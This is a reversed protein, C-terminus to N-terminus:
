DETKIKGWTVTLKEEPSVALVTAFGNTAIDKIVDAELAVNFVAVEDMAGDFFEDSETGYAGIILNGTNQIPVNPVYGPVEMHLEGDYYLKVGEGEAYVGAVHHWEGDNVPDGISAAADCQLPFNIKNEWTALFYGGCGTHNMYDLPASTTYKGWAMLTFAETVDLSPDNGCNIRHDVGNFELATGFMGDVWGLDGVFEGDNGNDSSDHAVDGNGEDFLWLGAITAPDLEASSMGTFVLIVFVTSVFVLTLRAWTTKMKTAETPTISVTSNLALMLCSRNM